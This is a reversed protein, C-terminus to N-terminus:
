WAWRGPNLGLAALVCQFGLWALHGGAIERGLRENPQIRQIGIGGHAGDNGLPVALLAGGTPRQADRARLAGILRAIQDQLKGADRLTAVM